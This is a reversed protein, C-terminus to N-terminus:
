QFNTIDDCSQAAKQNQQAQAPSAPNPPPTYGFPGFQGDSGASMLVFPQSIATEGNDIVGNTNYDGFMMQVRRLVILDNGAGPPEETSHRFAQLNDYANYLAIVLSSGQNPLDVYPSTGQPPTVAPSLNLHAPRPPYYLIPGGYPDLLFVGESKIKGPTLYPGWVKGVGPTRTRFGPGNAGDLCNFPTYYESSLMQGTNATLTVYYDGAGDTVCDGPQYPVVAQWNPPNGQPDPTTTNLLFQDGYPGLLAKGLTAAGTNIMPQGASPASTQVPLRPYDGFDQKYADLAISITQFDAQTRLVTAQRMSHMIMPLLLATLLGLIGIVVLLEIMTFARSRNSRPHIM